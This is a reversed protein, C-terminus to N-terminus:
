LITIHETYVGRLKCDRNIPSDGGFFLNDNQVFHLIERSTSTRGQLSDEYRLIGLSNYLINIELLNGDIGILEWLYKNIGSGSGAVWFGIGLV